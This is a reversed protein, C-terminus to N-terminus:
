RMRGTAQSASELVGGSWHPFPPEWVGLSRGSSCGSSAPGLVALEVMQLSGRCIANEVMGDIVRGEFPESKRFPLKFSWWALLIFMVQWPSVLNPIILVSNCVCSKCYLINKELDRRIEKPHDGSCTCGRWAEPSVM